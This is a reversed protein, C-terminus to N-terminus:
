DLIYYKYKKELEIWNITYSGELKIFNKNDGTPKEITGKLPENRRFFQYIGEVKKGEYFLKDKVLVLSLTGNFGNLKLKELFELDKIFSFMQEPYQGNLPHKIEIAYKEKQDKSYIVIDIEKKEFKKKDVDTIFFNINREFEVKYNDKYNDKLYRRLYIGLEHQLSFENYINSFEIKKSYELFEIITEKIESIMLKELNKM